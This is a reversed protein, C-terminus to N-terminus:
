DESCRIVTKPSVSEGALCRAYCLPLDSIRNHDDIFTAIAPALDPLRAVADPLETTFAHCGALSLEKEVLLTPDLDLGGHYIGVLALRTGGPLSRVLHGLLQASGTAEVVGTVRRLECEDLAVIRARTAAAVREARAATRDAVLLRVGQVRSLLLACLAGIMGCGTVLLTEGAKPLLRASAHLGVALPEATAAITSPLAPDHKLLLREPLVAEPAFGGDCVEGVFGLTACLHQQGSRCAACTGCWVRSDAVV